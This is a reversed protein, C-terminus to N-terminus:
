PLECSFLSLMAVQLFVVLPLLLILLLILGSSCIFFAKTKLHFSTPPIIGRIQCLHIFNYANFKLNCNLNEGM